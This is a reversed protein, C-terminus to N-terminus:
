ELQKILKNVFNLKMLRFSDQEYTALRQSRQNSSDKVRSLECVLQDMQKRARMTLYVYAGMLSVSLLFGFWSHRYIGAFGVIGALVLVSFSIRNTLRYKTYKKELEDFRSVLLPTM